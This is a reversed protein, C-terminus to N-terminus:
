GHEYRGETCSLGERGHIAWSITVEHLQLYGDENSDFVEFARSDTVDELPLMNLCADLISAFCIM